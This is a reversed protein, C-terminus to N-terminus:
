KKLQAPMVKKEENETLWDCYKQCDEESRFFTSYRELENFDMGESYVVKVVTSSDLTFGDGDDRYQSYWLTLGPEHRNSKFEKLIQEDPKYFPKSVACECSESMQKGSPSMFVINRRENCNDCKPGTVSDYVAKYLTVELNKMLEALRAGRINREMTLREHKIQNEKDRYEKKIQDFNKKVEQLEANESKLRDMEATYETKVSNLLAQKFEDIKMEFDSPERYFEEDYEYM